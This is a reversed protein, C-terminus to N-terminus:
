TVVIILPIFLFITFCRWTDPGTKIDNIPFCHLFFVGRVKGFAQLWLFASTYHFKNVRSWSWILIKATHHPILGTRRELIHTNGLEICRLLFYRQTLTSPDNLLVSSLPWQHCVETYNFYYIQSSPWYSAWLPTAHTHSQGVWLLPNSGVNRHSCFWLLTVAENRRTM